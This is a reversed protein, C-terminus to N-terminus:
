LKMALFNPPSSTALNPVGIVPAFFAVGIQSPVVVVLIM